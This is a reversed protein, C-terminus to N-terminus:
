PETRRGFVGNPRADFLGLWRLRYQLEYVHEIHYTDRDVDGPRGIERAFPSTMTWSVDAQAPAPVGSTLGLCLAAVAVSSSLRKM